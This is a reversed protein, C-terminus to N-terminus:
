DMLGVILIIQYMNAHGFNIAETAPCMDVKHLKVNNMKWAIGRYNCYHPNTKKKKESHPPHTLPIM